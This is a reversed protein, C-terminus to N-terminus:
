GGCAGSLAWVYPTFFDEPRDEEVYRFKLDPFKGLEGGAGEQVRQLRTSFYGIVNKILSEDETLILLVILSMYIQHSNNLNADYLVQLIPVIARLLVFSNTFLNDKGICHNALALLLLCSQNAAPHEGNLRALLEHRDAPPQTHITRRVPSISPPAALMSCLNNVLTKVLLPAHMSYILSSEVLRSQEHLGAFMYVFMLVLITNICELHLYYTTDFPPIPTVPVDIILSILADIVMEVRSEAALKPSTEAEFAPSPPTDTVLPPTPPTEEHVRHPRRDPQVDLHQCLEHEAVM